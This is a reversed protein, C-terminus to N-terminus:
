KLLDEIPYGVGNKYTATVNMVDKINLLPDGDLIVLDALKGPEISGLQDDVNLAKAAQITASQLAQFPTLGCDVYIQLEVLLSFGYPIFPSDTGALLRGDAAVIDVIFKQISGFNALYSSPQQELVTLRQRLINRYNESYLNVFQRNNLLSSDNQLLVYFGGQLGITPTIYMQSGVLLNIVDQYTKKLQTQKPSYGRRSTGRIHEVGDVNYKTSPYIEHSSVPIGLAHAQITIKQQISDELRVYTKILDYELKKARQLELDVQTSNVLSNAIDYYIRSGDTLGGAYFVRPGPNTQQTWTEKRYLADHANAGPERVTTIGFALWTRGLKEGVSAHQHTHSEILAPMITKNSADIVNLSTRDQHPEISKIISGEIIIDVDEKYSESIGDFLRGAHIIYNEDSLAPTYHQLLPIVTSNKDLLDVRKLQDMSVYYVSQGNGPMSPSSAMDGSLQVPDGTPQGYQDILISWLTGEQSYVMRQGDASWIPGNTNRM